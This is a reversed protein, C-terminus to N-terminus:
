GMSFAGPEMHWIINLSFAVCVCSNKDVRLLCLGIASAVVVTLIIGQEAPVTCLPLICLIKLSGRM